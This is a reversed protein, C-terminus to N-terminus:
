ELKSSQIGIEGVKQVGKQPVFFTVTTGVHEISEVTIEGDLAEILSKVLYLGLGTGPIEASVVNTARFFRKFLSGMEAQPIGIGTDQVCFLLKAKMATVTITIEGGAKTYKIANSIVNIMVEHLLETDVHVYEFDLMMKVSLKIKKQAVLPSLEHKLETICNKIHVKVPKITIRGTEIRSLNLLRNVLETMRISSKEIDKLMDKEKDPLIKHLRKYLLESLWKLSTLPTRLQHSALSIFESKLREREKRMTIDESIGVFNIITGDEVVPFVSIRAAYLSGDKRKNIVQESSYSEGRLLHDWLHRYVSSNTHASRIIRPTEGIAEDKTYGNLAEWAPNVYEIINDKNTILVADSSSEVAKALKLSNQLQHETSKESKKLEKLTSVLDEDKEKLEDNKDKIKELQAAYADILLSLVGIESRSKSLIAKTHNGSLAEVKKILRVMPRILIFKFFALCIVIGFLGLLATQQIQDKLLRSLLPVSRDKFDARIFLVSDTTFGPLPAVTVTAREAQRSQLVQQTISMEAQLLDSLQSLISDDWKVAIVVYGYPHTNQATLSHYLIPGVHYAILGAEPHHYFFTTVETKSSRSLFQSPVYPLTAFVTGTPNKDGNVQTYIQEGQADLVWVADSKYIELPGYFERAIWETNKQEVARVMDDWLSYDRAFLVQLQSVSKLAAHVSQENSEIKAFEAKELVSSIYKYSLLYGLLIFLLALGTLVAFLQTLKM